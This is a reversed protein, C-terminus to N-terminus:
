SCAFEYTCLWSALVCHPCLCIVVTCTYGHVFTTIIYVYSCTCIVMSANLTTQFVYAYMHNPKHACAERHVHMYQVHTYGECTCVHKHIHQECKCMHVCLLVSTVCICRCIGSCECMCVSKRGGERKEEKMVEERWGLVASPGTVM